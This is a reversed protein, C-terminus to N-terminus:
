DIGTRFLPGRSVLWSGPDNGAGSYGSAFPVHTIRGSADVTALVDVRVSDNYQGTITPPSGGDTTVWVSQSVALDAAGVVEAGLWRTSSTLQGAEVSWVVEYRTVLMILGPTPCAIVTDGLGVLQFGTAADTQVFFPHVYFGSGRRRIQGPFWYRPSTTTLWAYRGLQRAQVGGAAKASRLLGQVFRVLSQVRVLASPRPM